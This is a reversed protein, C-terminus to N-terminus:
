VCLLQLVRLNHQVTDWPLSLLLGAQPAGPLQGPHPCPSPVETNQVTHRPSMAGVCPHCTDKRCSTWSYLLALVLLLQPQCGLFFHLGGQQVPVQSVQVLQMFLLVKEDLLCPSHALQDGSGPQAPARATPTGQGGRRDSWCYCQWTSSM